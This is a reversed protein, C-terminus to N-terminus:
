KLAAVWPRAIMVERTYPRMPAHKLWTARGLRSTYLKRSSSAGFCRTKPALARFASNVNHTTGLPQDAFCSTIRNSGTERLGGLITPM